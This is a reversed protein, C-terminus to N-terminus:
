ICAWGWTFRRNDQRLWMADFDFAVISPKKNKINTPSFQEAMVKEIDIRYSGTIINRSMFSIKAIKIDDSTFRQLTSAIRGVAQSTSRFKTNTVIINVSENDIKLDNIEFRDAALVKKIADINNKKQPIPNNKRLRMPVPALEKGCLLPPRNTNFTVDATISFQSGHLYQRSLNIYNNFQFSIGYNWPGNVDLYSKEKSM